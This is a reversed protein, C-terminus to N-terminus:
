LAKSQTPVRADRPLSSEHTAAQEVEGGRHRQHHHQPCGRQPHPAIVQTVLATTKVAVFISAAPEDEGTMAAAQDCSILPNWPAAKVIDGLQTKSVAPGM